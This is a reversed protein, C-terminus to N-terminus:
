RAKSAEGCYKDMLSEEPSGPFIAAWDPSPKKFTEVKDDKRVVQIFISRHKDRKCDIEELSIIEKDVMRYPLVRKRWVRIFGRSPYSVTEKEYYFITNLKNRAHEEWKKDAIQKNLDMEAGGDAKKKAEADAAIKVPDGDAKVAGTKKSIGCGIVLFAICMAFIVTKIVRSM